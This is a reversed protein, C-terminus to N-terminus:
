SLDKRKLLEHKPWKTESDAEKFSVSPESVGLSTPWTLEASNQFNLAGSKIELQGRNATTFLALKLLRERLLLGGLDQNVVFLAM